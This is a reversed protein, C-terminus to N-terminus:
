MDNNHDIRMEDKVTEQDSTVYLENKSLESKIRIYKNVLESVKNKGTM